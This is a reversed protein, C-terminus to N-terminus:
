QRNRSNNCALEIIHLDLAPFNKSTDARTGLVGVTLGVVGGVLHSLPVPVMNSHINNVFITLGSTMEYIIKAPLLALMMTYFIIWIRHCIPGERKIFLFILLTYLSCDLGSLGGYVELHPMVIWVAIPIFIATIALTAVFRGRDMIECLAGLVFFTLTSWLLHDANLHVWHCSVLRWFDGGQLAARSYLLHPRLSHHIHIGLAVATLLM